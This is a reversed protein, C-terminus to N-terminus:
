IYVFYDALLNLRTSSEVIAILEDTAGVGAERDTNLYIGRGAVGAIPSSGLVYNEPTGKLYIFDALTFDTILAYDRLGQTSNDSDNYYTTLTDALFFRDNDRGGTLTDITGVGTSESFPTVGYLENNGEGSTLIDNGNGGVLRDNGNGGVLRDNFNSGTLNLVEINRFTDTESVTVKRQMNPDFVEAATKITSYDTNLTVTVTKTAHSYDAVLTDYGEWGDLTDSGIGGDLIDDGAKGDLIDDGAGSNFTDSGKSGYLKDNFNSGTLNLVEIDRFTDTEVVTVKKDRTPGIFVETATKITGNITGDKTESEFTLTIAKTAHSYDAILTDNGEWGNLSDSGIGGNLIDNGEWGHLIDDGAGGNLTANGERGHLFDNGAGGNLTDNGKSGYLKDNFNSGTLNLMEINRFTDTESVIIKRDRAADFVETEAAITGNIAGEKTESEFTLTIAKTANSYDAILTDNGEWGDLTDSGIGGSLIDNGEGGHLIDNGSGGNLTDNGKSGYLEDNFNSGTLNLVEINRFTDTELVTVKTDRGLGIFVETEATITGNISSDRINSAFTLTIAKTAHSYDAVLTDNDRGGDLTDSGIGGDLTDNGDGGDLTDNGDLGFM